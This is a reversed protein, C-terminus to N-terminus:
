RTVSAKFCFSQLCVNFVSSVSFFLKKGFILIDKRLVSAYDRSLFGMVHESWTARELVLRTAHEFECLGFPEVCGLLM